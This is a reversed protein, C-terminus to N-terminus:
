PSLYTKSWRIKRFKCYQRFLFQHRDLVNRVIVSDDAYGIDPVFDPIIDVEAATYRLAFATEKRSAESGTQFAGDAADEFFDALLRLQQRLHPFQPAVIVAFQLNLLALETRLLADLQKSTLMAARWQVYDSISDISHCSSRRYSNRRPFELSRDPFRMAINRPTTLIKTRGFLHRQRTQVLLERAADV